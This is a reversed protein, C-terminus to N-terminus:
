EPKMEHSHNKIARPRVCVCVSVERVFSIELFWARSHKPWRAGPKFIQPDNDCM